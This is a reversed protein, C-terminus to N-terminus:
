KIYSAVAPIWTEELILLFYAFHKEMPTNSVLTNQLKPDSRPTPVTRRFFELIGSMLEFRRDPSEGM